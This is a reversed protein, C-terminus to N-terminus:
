IMLHDCLRIQCFVFAYSSLLIFAYLANIWVPM